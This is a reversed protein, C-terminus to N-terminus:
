PRMEEPAITQNEEVRAQIPYALNLRECVFQALAVYHQAEPHHRAYTFVSQCAGAAEAVRVSRGIAVPLITLGAEAICQVQDHHHRLRADYFTLLIGLFLLSPNIETQISKVTEIFLLLGRLDQATPQAPVIVAHAACLANITLLGQDPPCDILCVDFNQEVTALIKKLVTERQLRASLGQAAAVLATDGPCIWLNAGLDVLVDRLPVHGPKAGGLVEALSFIQKLFRTRGAAENPSMEDQVGCTGTLSAQPDANVLLVRQAYERALVVGLNHTTATKGTGGKHNAIAITQM